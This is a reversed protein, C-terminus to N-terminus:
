YRGARLIRALLEDTAAETGDEWYQRERYDKDGAYEPGVGGSSASPLGNNRQEADQNTSRPRGRGGHPHESFPGTTPGPYNFGPPFVTDRSMKLATLKGPNLLHKPNSAQESLWQLFKQRWM